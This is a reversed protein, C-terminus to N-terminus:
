RSVLIRIRRRLRRRAVLRLDARRETSARICLFINLGHTYQYGVSVFWDKAVQNQIELSGQEAFANDFKKVSYGLPFQLVPGTAPDPYIGNHTFNSFAPGALAPSPVGVAGSPGTGILFKSPDAFQPLLPQNM